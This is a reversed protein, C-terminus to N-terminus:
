DSLKFFFFYRCWGTDCRKGKGYVPNGSDFLDTMATMVGNNVEPLIERKCNPCHFTWYKPRDVRQLVILLQYRPDNKM